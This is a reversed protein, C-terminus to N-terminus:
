LRTVLHGSFWTDKVNYLTVSSRFANNSADQPSTVSVEVWVIDSPEFLGEYVVNGNLRNLVAIDDSPSSSIGTSQTAEALPSTVGNRMLMLKIVRGFAVHRSDFTLAAEFHYIGKEPVLFQSLFPQYNLGINYAATTAFIIKNSVSKPIDQHGGSTGQVRFAIPKKWEANGNNDTSTLVAGAVPFFSRIRFSGALDLAATPATNGIGVNGNNVNMVFKWNSLAGYIGVHDQDYTGIFSRSPSTTGDFWLGATQSGSHQLRGRGAVDLKYAPTNTGIGVNQAFPYLVMLLPAVTTFVTKKMISNSQIKM